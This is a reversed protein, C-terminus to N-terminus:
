LGGRTGNTHAQPVSMSALPQGMGDQLAGQPMWGGAFTHGGTPMTAHAQPLKMSALPQGRVDQLGHLPMNGPRIGTTGASAHTALPQGYGPAPKGSPTPQAQFPSQMALESGAVGLLAAHSISGGDNSPMGACHHPVWAACSFAAFFAACSTTHGMIAHGAIAHTQPLTMSALPQEVHVHLIHGAWRRKGMFTCSRCGIVRELAPGATDFMADIAGRGILRRKSSDNAGMMHGM